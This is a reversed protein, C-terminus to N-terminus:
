YKKNKNDWTYQNNKCKYELKKKLVRNEFVLDAYMEHMLKLESELNKITEKNKM